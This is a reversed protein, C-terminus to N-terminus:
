HKSFIHLMFLQVLQLLTITNYTPIFLSKKSLRDVIVLISTYSSSPPLKEIFDMSISNWPKNPIPLQKLLGYPKHHMPKACSCTICLKCYDKVYVPLGPWYYHM